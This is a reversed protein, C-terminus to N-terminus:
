KLDSLQMDLNRLIDELNELMDNYSEKKAM